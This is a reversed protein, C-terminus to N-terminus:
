FAKNLSIENLAKSDIKQFTRGIKSLIDSLEKTERKTFTANGSLDTYTADLMWVDKNEKLKDTIHENFSASMDAFSNGSYITHWVIGIRARLIEKALNSQEPIAYTITNPTFSIYYENDYKVKKLDDKSFMFDGQIVGKFGRFSPKLYELAYKLKKQLDGSTDNEIEKFTKYVKPNKNFISKKAVFFNNDRPDTGAFLAPAGDYKISVNLPKDNNGSLTDRIDRVVNLAGRAGEIGGIFIFDELHEMHLNKAEQLFTKFRKM